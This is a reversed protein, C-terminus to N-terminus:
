GDERQSDPGDDAHKDDHQQLDSLAGFLVDISPGMDQGNVWAVCADQARVTVIHALSHRSLRTDTSV